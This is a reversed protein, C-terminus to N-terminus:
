ITYTGPDASILNASVNPRLGPQAGGTAYTRGAQPGFVKFGANQLVAADDPFVQLSITYVSKDGPYSIAYTAVQGGPQLHGKVVAAASARGALIQAGLLAAGAGVAGRIVDRRTPGSAPEAPIADDLPM